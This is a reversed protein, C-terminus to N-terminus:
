GFGAADPIGAGQLGHALDLGISSRQLVDSGTRAEGVDLDVAGLRLAHQGVAVAHEDDCAEAAREAERRDLEEPELIQTAACCFGQSKVHTLAYECSSM